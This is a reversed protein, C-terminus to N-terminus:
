FFSVDVKGALGVTGHIILDKNILFVYEFQKTCGEYKSCNFTNLRRHLKFMYICIYMILTFFLINCCYEYTGHDFTAINPITM